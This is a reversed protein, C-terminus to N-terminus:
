NTLTVIVTQPAMVIRLDHDDSLVSVANVNNDTVWNDLWTKIESTEYVNADEANQDPNFVSSGVSTDCIFMNGNFVTWNRNALRVKNGIQLGTSDLDCELIPRVPMSMNVNINVIYNDRHVMAAHTATSGPSRLWWFQGNEPINDKYEEYEEKSLLTVNTIPVTDVNVLNHAVAWDELWFRVDSAEYNTSDSTTAINRFVRKGVTEDCLLMSDSIVTWNYGVLPVKDGVQLGSIGFDCKLVPRVYCNDYNVISSSLTGTIDVDAAHNTFSGVSRLWWSHEQYLPINDKYEEYEESTLLTVENVTIELLPLIEQEDAWNDLWEKVDSVAYNNADDASGDIRFRMNSGIFDDCLILSNSIVTWTHNALTVKTGVSLDTDSLDCELVPRVGCWSGVIASVVAGSTNVAYVYNHSDCPTQLWWLHSMDSSMIDKYENYEDLTLLRVNQVNIDRRPKLRYKIENWELSNDDAATIVDYGAPVDTEQSWVHYTDEIDTDYGFTKDYVWNRLSSAGCIYSRGMDSRLRFTVDSPRLGYQNDNDDWRIYVQFGANLSLQYTLVQISTPNTPTNTYARNTHSWYYHEPMDTVIPVFSLVDGGHSYVPVFVYQIASPIVGPSYESEDYHVSTVYDDNGFIDVDVAPRKVDNGNWYIQIGIAQRPEYYLTITTDHSPMLMKYKGDSAKVVDGITNSVESYRFSSATQANIEVVDGAYFYYSQSRVTERRGEVGEELREGLLIHQIDLRYKPKEPQPQGEPFESIEEDREEYTIDGSFLEYPQGSESSFQVEYYFVGDRDDTTANLKRLALMGPKSENKFLIEDEDMTVNASLHGVGDSTISVMIEEVHTDYEVTNDSGIVEKIYYHHDGAVEYEIPQFEIAGGESVSAIDILTEDEYLLFNFSDPDAASEDMLKTGAFRITVKLPDYKNLFLAESEEDPMIEGINNSQKILNWGFPTREYVQYSTSAPIPSFLAKEDAKISFDFAGDQMVISTDKPTFVATFTLEAGAVYTNAPIVAKDDWIRRTGDTWHDFMYGFVRFTNGPLTYDEASEVIVPPMDGLYGDETCVFTITYETPVKEWVWKGAMAATYNDRLEEPTYPGYTKDERIWKRTYAVGDYYQPPLPLKDSSGNAGLFPNHDGLVVSKLVGSNTNYMGMTGGVHSTDFGSIDLHQIGSNWFINSMLTVSSTNWTSLDLAILNECMRFASSMTTVNSTDWNSVDISSLRFCNQFLGAMNQVNSVDWDSVDFAVMQQCENFLYSIDVVSSTVFHEPLTLDYLVNCGDFMRAMSNVNMTDFKSINLERVSTCYQFMGDMVTTKSTDLNDLDFDVCKSMNRFWMYTNLPAIEDVIVVHEADDFAHNGNAIWAPYASSSVYASMSVGYILGVYVDGSVNVLTQDAVGTTVVQSSCVFYVTKDDSNYVAYVNVVPEWVWTGSLDSTYNSTLEASSYPGYLKDDRIWKGTYRFNDYIASPTPLTVSANKGIFPNACELIVTQLSPCNYFMNYVSNANSVDFGLPLRLKKLNRCGYFMQSFDTGASTTFDDPFILEELNPCQYFMLAFQTVNNTFFSEPFDIHRLNPCERFMGSMDTAQSVDFTDPLSISILNTMKTFMGSFNTVCETNFNEPFVIESLSECSAFMCSMNTVCSTNFAEPFILSELNSCGTFMCYMNLVSSTNFSDPLELEVLSECKNFMDSMTTVNSTDFESSFVIESLATCGNFMREMKTVNSTDFGSPFVIRELSSCNEFMGATSTISHTEWGTMDLNILSRCGAFWYSLSTLGSVDAKSLDISVINRCGYFMHSGTQGTTQGSIVVRGACQVSIIDNRANEWPISYVPMQLTQEESANGLTLVGDTLDWDCTGNLKGSDAMATGCWLLMAIMIAMIGVIMMLRRKMTVARRRSVDYEYECKVM